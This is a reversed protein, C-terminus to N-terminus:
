PISYLHFSSCSDNILDKLNNFITIFWPVILTCQTQQAVASGPVNELRLRLVTGYARTDIPQRIGGGDERGGLGRRNTSTTSGVRLGAHRLTENCFKRYGYM